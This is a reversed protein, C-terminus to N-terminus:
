WGTSSILRRWYSVRSEEATLSQRYARLATLSLHAFEPNREPRPRGGARTREPARTEATRAAMAEVM